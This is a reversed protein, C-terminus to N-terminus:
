GGARARLLAFGDDVVHDLAFHAHVIGLDVIEDDEAAVAGGGVEVGDDDVVVVHADGVDDAAVVVQGVGEALDLDVAGHVPVNGAEAVERRMWPASPALSLM